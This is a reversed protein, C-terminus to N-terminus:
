NIKLNMLYKFLVMLKYDLYKTKNSSLDNIIDSLIWLYKWDPTYVFYDFTHRNSNKFTNNAKDMLGFDIYYFKNFQENYVINLYKIDQHIFGNDWIKTCGALLNYMPILLYEPKIKYLGRSRKYTLDYGGNKMILMELKDRKNKYECTDSGRKPKKVFYSYQCGSLCKEESQTIKDIECRELGFLTFKSTPDIKKILRGEKMEDKADKPEMIKSVYENSKRAKGKCPLPPNYVCGYSGKAIFKGGQQNKTM